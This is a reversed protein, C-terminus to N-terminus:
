LDAEVGVADRLCPNCSFQEAGLSERAREGLEPRLGCCRREEVLHGFLGVRAGVVHSRAQQVDLSASGRRRDEDLLELEVALLGRAISDFSEEKGTPHLAALDSLEHARRADNGLAGAGDHDLQAEEVPRRLDRQSAVVDRKEM